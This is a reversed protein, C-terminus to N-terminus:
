LIRVVDSLLIPNFGPKVEITAHGLRVLLASGQANGLNQGEIEVSLWQTPAVDPADIDKHKRVWYWLQHPKLDHTSCWASASQGSAKFAAM